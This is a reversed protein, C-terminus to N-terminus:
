RGKQAPVVSADLWVHWGPMSGGRTGAWLWCQAQQMACMTLRCHPVHLDTAGPSSLLTHVLPPGLAYNRVEETVGIVGEKQLRLGVSAVAERTSKGQMEAVHSLIKGELEQLRAQM